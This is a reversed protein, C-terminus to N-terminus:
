TQSRRGAIASLLSSKGSGVPGTIVTLSKSPLTFKIKDLIFENERKIEPKYTLNSVSLPTAKDRDEVEHFSVEKEKQQDTLRSVLETSISELDNTDETTHDRSIAPFQNELLLFHEIRGLSVYAEYIELSGYALYFFTGTRLIGIYRLFM